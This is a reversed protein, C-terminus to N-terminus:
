GSVNKDCAMENFGVAETGMSLRTNCQCNFHKLVAHSADTRKIEKIFSLINLKISTMIQDQGKVWTAWVAVM